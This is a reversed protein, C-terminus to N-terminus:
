VLKELAFTKKKKMEDLIGNLKLICIVSMFQDKKKKRVKTKGKERPVVYYYLPYNTKSFVLSVLTDPLM